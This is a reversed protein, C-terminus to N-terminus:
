SAGGSGADMALMKRISEEIHGGCYLRGYRREQEAVFNALSPKAGIRGCLAHIGPAHSKM